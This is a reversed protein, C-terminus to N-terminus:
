FTSSVLRVAAAGLAISLAVGGAGIAVGIGLVVVDELIISLAVVVAGMSPVTDLGSFPPSVAAALALAVIV